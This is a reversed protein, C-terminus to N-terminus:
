YTSGRNAREIPMKFCTITRYLCSLALLQSNTLSKKIRAISRSEAMRSYIPSLLSWSRAVLGYISSFKIPSNRTSSTSVMLCYAKPRYPSIWPYILSGSPTKSELNTSVASWFRLLSWYVCYAPNPLVPVWFSLSATVFLAHQASPSIAVVKPFASIFECAFANNTECISGGVM